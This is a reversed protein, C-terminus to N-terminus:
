SAGDALHLAGVSCYKQWNTGTQDGCTNTLLDSNVMTLTSSSGRLYIGAGGVLTDTTASFSGSADSDISCDKVITRTLKITAGNQGYLCGGYKANGGKLVADEFEMTGVDAHAIGGICAKAGSAGPTDCTSLLLRMRRRSSPYVDGGDITINRVVLKKDGVSFARKGTVVTITAGNGVVTSDATLTLDDLEVTPTVAPDITSTGSSSVPPDCACTTCM